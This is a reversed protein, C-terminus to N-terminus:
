IPIIGVVKVFSSLYRCFGAGEDDGVWLRLLILRVVM